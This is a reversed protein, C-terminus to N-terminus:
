IVVASCQVPIKMPSLNCRRGLLMATCSTRTFLSSRCLQPGLPGKCNYSDIDETAEDFTESVAETKSSCALFSTNALCGAAGNSKVEEEPYIKMNLCRETIELALAPNQTKLELWKLGHEVQTQDKRQNFLLMAKEFLNPTPLLKTIALIDM